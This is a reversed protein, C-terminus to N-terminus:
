VRGIKESSNCRRRNIEIIDENEVRYVIDQNTSDNPVISPLLMYTSNENMHITNSEVIIENIPVYVLVYKINEM